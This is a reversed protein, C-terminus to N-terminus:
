KWENGFRDKFKLTIQGITVLDWDREQLAISNVNDNNATVKSESVLNKVYDVGSVRDLLAYIESPYIKRGFPWGQGDWYTGSQLPHFFTNIESRVVEEVKQTDASDELYLDASINVTLYNPQVIHLRTTLLKRKNLWIKIDQNLQMVQSAQVQVPDPVIVLSIHGRAAANKHSSERDCEPIVYVRKIKNKHEWDLLILQEFDDKTVARYRQRLDLITTRTEQQLAAERTEPEVLESPLSWSTQKLLNLFTEYNRDGVQNVRYLTMETLWALLEILVIGTDTPNHDTWEPCEIPILSRAEEVLDAYTRDDLNPLPISM